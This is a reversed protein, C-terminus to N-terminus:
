PARARIQEHASNLEQIRLFRWRRKVSATTRRTFFNMFREFSKRPNERAIRLLFEDSEIILATPNNRRSREGDDDSAELPRITQERAKIIGLIMETVNLDPSNPPWFPCIQCHESLEALNADTAHPSAGDHVIVWPRGEYATDAEGFFSRKLSEVYTKADVTGDFIVLSSRFGIGVPGWVM